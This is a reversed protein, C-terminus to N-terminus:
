RRGAEGAAPQARGIERRLAGRRSDQRPRLPRQLHDRRATVECRARRRSGAATSARRRRLRADPPVRAHPLPYRGEFVEIPTNRCNSHRTIEGDNGDKRSTGGTGMGDFHYNTYYRAPRRHIGGFLFNSSRAAAPPPSASPCPRALAGRPAPRDAEAPSRHQRRRVPGPPRRQGGIRGPRHVQDAPLLGLQAPDPTDPDTVSFVANYIASAVVVVTCNMPGRVQPSSGTFDAIVEDGRIVVTVRVEFPDATVGDDEVLMSAGRVGRGAARRDRRAPAARLLGILEATRREILRRTTASSWSACRAARRREALRDHRPFRGLHQAAHPPERPRDALRGRRVRRPELLKM